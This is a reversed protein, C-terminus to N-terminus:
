AAVKQEDAEIPLKCVVAHFANVSGCFLVLLVFSAEVAEQGNMEGEGKWAGRSESGSRRYRLRGHLTWMHFREM